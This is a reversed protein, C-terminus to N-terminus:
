LGCERVDGFAAMVNGKLERGCKQRLDRMSAIAYWELEEDM